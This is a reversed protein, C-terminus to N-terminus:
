LIAYGIAGLLFIIEMWILNYEGSDIQNCLLGNRKRVVEEINM